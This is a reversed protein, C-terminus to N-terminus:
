GGFGSVGAAAGQRSLGQTFPRWGALILLWLGFLALGITAPLRTMSLRRSYWSRVERRRGDTPVEAGAHDREYDPLGEPDQGFAKAAKNARDRYVEVLWRDQAGVIYWLLSVALGLLAPLITADPVRADFTLYGLFGFLALEVTLFFYFRQWMRDYQAKVYDLKVKYDEFLLEASM